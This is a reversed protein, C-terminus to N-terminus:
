RAPWTVDEVKSANEPYTGLFFCIINLFFVFVHVLPQFYSFGQFFGMLFWLSIISLSSM